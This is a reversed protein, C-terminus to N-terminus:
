PEGAGIMAEAIIEEADSWAAASPPSRTLLVRAMGSRLPMGPLSSDGTTMLEAGGIAAEDLPLRTVTRCRFDPVDFAGCLRPATEGAVELWVAYRDRSSDNPHLSEAVVWGEREAVSYEVTGFFASDASRLAVRRLDTAREMLRALGEFQKSLPHEEVRSRWWFFGAVSACFAVAAATRWRSASLRMRSAGRITGTPAATSEAERLRLAGTGAAALDDGGSRDAQGTHATAHHATRAASKVLRARLAEPISSTSPGGAAAAAIARRCAEEAADDLDRTPLEAIRRYVDVSGDGRSGDPHHAVDDAGDGRRQDNRLTM